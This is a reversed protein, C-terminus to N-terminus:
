EDRLTIMPDTMAARRAPFYCALLAVALLLTAAGAFTLPDNPAVGYLMSAVIKTINYAMIVGAIAGIAVMMMGNQLVMRLVVGPRAGLAMRIGIERTRRAVSNSMVGYLGISALLLALLGFFTTLKAFARERAISDEIQRAQTKIDFLPLKSDVQRVAERIA